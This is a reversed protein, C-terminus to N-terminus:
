CKSSTYTLCVFNAMIAIQSWDPNISIDNDDNDYGSSIDDVNM